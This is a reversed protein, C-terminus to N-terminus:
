PNVMEATLGHNFNLLRQLVGLGSLFRPKFHCGVIEWKLAMGLLGNILGKGNRLRAIAHTEEFAKGNLTPRHVIRAQSVPANSQIYAYGSSLIPGTLHHVINTVFASAVFNFVPSPVVGISTQIKM